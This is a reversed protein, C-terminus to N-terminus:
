WLGQMTLDLDMSMCGLNQAVSSVLLTTQPQMRGSEVLTFRRSQLHCKVSAIAYFRCPKRPSTALIPVRAMRLFLDSDEAKMAVQLTAQGLISIHQRLILKM